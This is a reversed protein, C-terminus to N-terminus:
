RAMRGSALNRRGPPRRRRRAGPRQREPRDLCRGGPRHVDRHRGRVRGRRPRRHLTRRGAHRLQQRHQGPHRLRVPRRRHAHHRRQPRRARGPRHRHRQSRHPLRFPGHRGAGLDVGRRCRRHHGLQRRPQRARRWGALHHAVGTRRRAHLRHRLPRPPRRPLHRRLWRGPPVPIGREVRIGGCLSVTRDEGIKMTVPQSATFTHTGTATTADAELTVPTGAPVTLVARDAGDPVPHSVLEGNTDSARVVVDTAGTALLGSVDVEIDGSEWLSYLDNADYAGPEPLSWQSALVDLDTMPTGPPGALPQGDPGIPMPSTAVRRVLGDGNFDVRPYVDEAVGCSHQARVVRDLCGDLNLDFKPSDFGYGSLTRDAGDLAIDAAAPCGDSGDDRVACAYLWSDRLRRFDRMDVVGDPAAGLSPDAPDFYDDTGTVSGDLGYSHRRFGDTSSDNVDVLETAAGPLSLLSMFADMRPQAGGTVDDAAWSLIAHRIQALDPHSAHAALMSALGAVMPTAQSTGGEGCYLTEYCTSRIIGPASIDGLDQSFSALSRTPVVAGDVVDGLAEVALVPNTRDVESWTAAAYAWPGSSLLSERIRPCSAATHDASIGLTGGADCFKTGDNGAALAILVNHESAKRAVRTVARAAQAIERLHGDETAPLCPGDTGPDDDDGYSPGCTFAPHLDVWKQADDKWGFSFNLVRLPIPDAPATDLLRDVFPITDINSFDFGLLHANPDVGKTGSRTTGPALDYSAGVIGAVNTGHDPSDANVDVHNVPCVAGDPGQYCPKETITLNPLDPHDDRFGNDVIGAAVPSGDDRIAERLNWAQPVRSAELHWNQGAGEPPATAPDDWRYDHSVLEDKFPPPLADFSVPADYAAFDVVPDARLTALAADLGTFDGTDPVAVVLIATDGTGGIVTAGAADLAAQADGVTTGTVFGVVLRTRSTFVLTAPDFGLDADDFPPPLIDPVHDDVLDTPNGDLPASVVLTGASAGATVAYVGQVTTSMVYAGGPPIPGSGISSGLQVEVDFPSDNTFTATQGPRMVARAPVLGDTQISVDVGGPVTLDAATASELSASRPALPALAVVLLGVLVIATPARLSAAFAQAAGRRFTGTTRGTREM